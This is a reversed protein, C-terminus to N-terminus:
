DKAYRERRGPYVTIVKAKNLEKEYVVRLVHTEDIEKQAIIRNKYGSETKTPNNIIDIILEKSISVGHKALIDIKLLCHNTLEIEIM